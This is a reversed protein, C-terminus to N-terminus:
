RELLAKVRRLDAETDVGPPPAHPVTVVKIREGQWLIRLQELAEVSELASRPWNVYRRLFGVSYAYIGIHRLYTGSEPWAPPSHAFGDRFWPIPARSFYLAHSQHDLVVKVANPDLVEDSDGIPCALTAVQADAPPALAAALQPILEPEALPEDGQLNVVIQDEAWGLQEAVEAIRETGSAHDTRTMVATVPLEAVAAIIRLDDTAVIVDAGAQLARECVHVIMPRGAIPLLPKGPLRSSAHRAPIVVKFATM